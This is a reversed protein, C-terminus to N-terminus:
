GSGESEGSGRVLHRRVVAHNELRLARAHGGVDLEVSAVLEDVPEVTLGAGVGAGAGAGVRLRFGLGLGLSRGRAGAGLGSGWGRGEGRGEGKGEGLDSGWRGEM